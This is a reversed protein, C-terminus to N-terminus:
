WLVEASKLAKLANSVDTACFNLLIAGSEFVAPLNQNYFNIPFLVSFKQMRKYANTFHFVAEELYHNWTKRPYKKIIRKLCESAELFQNKTYSGLLYNFHENFKEGQKEHSELIEAWHKIAEIGTYYKQKDLENGELFQIAQHIIDHVNGRRSSQNDQPSYFWIQMYYPSNISDFRLSQSAINNNKDLGNMIYNFGEIENVLYYEALVGGWIIVPYGFEIINKIIFRYIKQARALDELTISNPSAPFSSHIQLMNLPIKFLNLNQQIYNWIDIGLPINSLKETIYKPFRYLFALGTIGAIDVADFELEFLPLLGSLCGIFSNPHSQMQVHNRASINFVDNIKNIEGIRNEGDIELIKDMGDVNKMIGINRKDNAIFDNDIPENEMEEYLSTNLKLFRRGRNTITYVGRKPKFILQLKELEALHNALATKGLSIITLLQAFELSKETFLAMLIELRKPYALARFIRSIKLIEPHLHFEEKVM